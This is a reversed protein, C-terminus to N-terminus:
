INGERLRDDVRRLAARVVEDKWEPRPEEGQYERVNIGIGGYTWLKDIQRDFERSGATIVHRFNWGNDPRLIEFEVRKQTTGDVIPSALLTEPQKLIRVNVPIM